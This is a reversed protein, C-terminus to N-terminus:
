PLVPSDGCDDPQGKTCRKGPPPWPCNAPDINKRLLDALHGVIGDIGAHGLIGGLGGGGNSAANPNYLDIHATASAGTGDDSGALNEVHLAPGSGFRAPPPWGNKGTTDYAERFKKAACRSPFQLHVPFNWHGGVKKTAAGVSATVGPFLADLGNELCDATASPAASLGFPDILDAPDNHVYGYFAVMGSFWRTPDESLFEGAQPDYYRACNYSVGMFM